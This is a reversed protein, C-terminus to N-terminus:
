SKGTARRYFEEQQSRLHFYASRDASSEILDSGANVGSVRKLLIQRAHTLEHLLRWEKNALDEVGFEETPSIVMQIFAKKVGGRDTWLIRADYGATDEGAEQVHIPIDPLSTVEFLTYVRTLRRIREPSRVWRATVRASFSSV